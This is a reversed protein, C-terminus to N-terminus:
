YVIVEFETDTIFYVRDFVDGTQTKVIKAIDSLPTRVVQGRIDLFLITLTESSHPLNAVYGGVQKNLERFDRSINLEIDINKVEVAIARKGGKSVDTISMGYRTGKIRKGQFTRRQRKFRPGLFEEVYQETEKGTSSPRPMRPAAEMARDVEPGLAHGCWAKGSFRCWKGDSKRHRYTHKGGGLDVDIEFDYGKEAFESNVERLASPDHAKAEIAAREKALTEPTAAEAGSPALETPGSGPTEAHAGKSTQTEADRKIANRATEDLDAKPIRELDQSLKELKDLSRSNNFEKIAKRLAPLKDLLDIAGKADLGAGVIAVVVWFQSPDTSKLNAQYEAHDEMYMKYMGLAQDASIVATGVAAAVGIAGPVFISAIMLAFLVATKIEDLLSEKSSEEIENQIVLDFISEKKISFSQEAVNLLTDLKYIRASNSELQKRAQEIGAVHEILYWNVLYLVDAPDTRRILRERPFDPWSVFPFAKLTTSVLDLVAERRQRATHLSAAAQALADRDFSRAATFSQLNAKNIEEDAKDLGTMVSSRVPDLQQMIQVAKENWRLTGEAQKVEYLFRHCVREAASLIRKAMGVTANRFVHEFAAIHQEFAPIGIIRYRTKLREEISTQLGREYVDAGRASIKQWEGKYQEIFSRALSLNGRLKRFRTLKRYDAYIDLMSADLGQGASGEPGPSMAASLESELETTRELEAQKQQQHTVLWRDFSAEFDAWSTPARLAIESYDVLDDRTLGAGIIKEAIRLRSKSDPPIAVGSRGSQLFDAVVDGFVEFDLTRAGELTGPHGGATKLVFGKDRRGCVGAPIFWDLQSPRKDSATVTAVTAIHSGPVPDCHDTVHRTEPQGEEFYYTALLSKRDFIIKTLRRDKTSAGTQQATGTQRQIYSCGPVVSAASTIPFRFNSAPPETSPQQQLTHALEHALLRRGSDTGPAYSGAGFVVNQGVTYALADVARASEAARADEHVRVRSFDQGFRPEFYARAAEDLPQGSSRLVEHVSAPAQRVSADATGVPKRQLKASKNQLRQVREDEECAACKRSVQPPAAAIAVPPAPMRMVQDAVRDAEHELPDGPESCAACKLQTPSVRGSATAIGPSLALKPWLANAAQPPRAPTARRDAGRGPSRDKTVSAHAAAAPM